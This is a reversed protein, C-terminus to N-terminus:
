EMKQAKIWEKLNEKNIPIWIDKRGEKKVKIKEM